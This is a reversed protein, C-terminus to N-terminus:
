PAVQSFIRNAFDSLNTKAQAPNKPSLAFFLIVSNEGLTKITVFGWNKTGKGPYYLAAQGVGPVEQINDEGKAYGKITSIANTYAFRAILSTFLSGDPFHYECTHSVGGSDPQAGLDRSTLTAVGFAQSVAEAPLLACASSIPDKPVPKSSRTPFDMTTPQSRTPSVAQSDFSDTSSIAYSTSKKGNNGCGATMLLAAIVTVISGALRASVITNRDLHQRNPQRTPITRVGLFGKWM